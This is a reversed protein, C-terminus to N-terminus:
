VRASSREQRVLRRVAAKLSGREQAIASRAAERDFGMEVMEELQVGLNEDFDPPEAQQTPSDSQIDAAKRTTINPTQHEDDPCGESPQRLSVDGPVDFESVDGDSTRGLSTWGEEDESLQTSVEEPSDPTLSSAEEQTGTEM